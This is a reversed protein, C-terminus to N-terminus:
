TCRPATVITAALCKVEDGEFWRRTSAKESAFTGEEDDASECDVEVYRLAYRAVEVEHDRPGDFSSPPQEISERRHTVGAVEGGVLVGLV